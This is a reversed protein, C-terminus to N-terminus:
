FQNLYFGLKYLKFLMLNPAQSLSNNILQKRFIKYLTVYLNSVKWKSLFDGWYSIGTLNIDVKNQKVLQALNILATQTKQLYIASTELNVHIVPNDIHNVTLQNKKLYQALLLDEYGYTKLQDDFLRQNFLHKDFLLNSTLLFRYPQNKRESVKRAEQYIGYKWRLIGNEPKKIDYTIGGFCIQDPQCLKLYQSLFDKSGPTVDCDLLICYRYQARQVLRNINGARGLNEKNKQFYCNELGDIKQNEAIKNDSADDNVLIEYDIDSQDALKKLNHVLPNADYNYTPILFSIM